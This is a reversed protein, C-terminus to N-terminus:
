YQPRCRGRWLGDTPLLMRSVTGIRVVGDNGLLEGITGVIWTAGAESALTPRALFATGCGSCPWTSSSPPSWAGRV